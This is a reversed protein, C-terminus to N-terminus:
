RNRSKLKSRIYVIVVVIIMGVILLLYLYLSSLMKDESQDEKTKGTEIPLANNHSWEVWSGDYNKVNKYGLIETLVFFTHSSRVGSHCYVIIEDDKKIGIKKLRKEIEKKSHFKQDGEYDILSHWDLWIAGPIRGKRSAGNKMIEGNFGEKTRVDLLKTSGELANQVDVM